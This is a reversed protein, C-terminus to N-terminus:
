QLIVRVKEMRKEKDPHNKNTIHLYYEGRPVKNVDIDITTGTIDKSKIKNKVDVSYYEKMKIDLLKINDPMLETPTDNDYSITLTSTAPNPGIRYGSSCNIVNIYKTNSGYGSCNTAGAEVRFVGTNYSTFSASNSGYWLLSASGNLLQFNYSNARDSNVVLYKSNGACMNVFSNGDGDAIFSPTGPAGYRINALAYTTGQGCTSVPYVKITGDGTASVSASSTTSSASVGGTTVWNYSTANGGTVEFTTTGCMIRDTVGSGWVGQTTGYNSITPVTFQPRTVTISAQQPTTGDTRTAYVSITGGGAVNTTVSISNTYTTTVGGAPTWGSPLSWHYKISSNPFTTPTACSISLATATCPLNAYTGGKSVTTGNLSIYSIPGIHKVTINKTATLPTADAGSELKYKFTITISKSDTNDPTNKWQVSCNATTGNTIVESGSASWTYTFDKAGIPLNALLCTYSYSDPTPELLTYGANGNDSISVSQSVGSLNILFLLSFILTISIQITNRKM